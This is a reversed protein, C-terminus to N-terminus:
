YISQQHKGLEHVLSTIFNSINMTPVQSLDLENRTSISPTVTLPDVNLVHHPISEPVELTPNSSSSYKPLSPLAFHQGLIHMKRIMDNHSVQQKALQVFNAKM